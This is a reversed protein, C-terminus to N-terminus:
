CREETIIEFNGDSTILLSIKGALKYYWKLLSMVSYRNLKGTVIYSVYERNIGLIAAAQNQTIEQEKIKEAIKRCLESKILLHDPDKLELDNFVNNNELSIIM